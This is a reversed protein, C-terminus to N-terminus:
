ELAHTLNVADIVTIKRQDLAILQRKELAHLTTTAFQRSVGVIAALDEHTLNLDIITGNATQKGFGEALALLVSAVREVASQTQLILVLDAVWNLRTALAKIITHSIEPFRNNIEYFKEVSLIYLSSDDLFRVTMRRKQSTSLDACGLIDGAFWYGTVGTKGNPSHFTSIAKGEALFAVYGAPDGQRWLIQGKRYRKRTCQDLVAYRYATPIANLVDLHGGKDTKRVQAEVLGASPYTGDGQRASNLSSIRM